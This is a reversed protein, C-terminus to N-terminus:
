ESVICPYLVLILNIDVKEKEKLKWWKEWSGVLCQFSFSISLSRFTKLQDPSAQKCHPYFSHAASLHFSYSLIFPPPRPAKGQWWRLGCFFMWVKPKQEVLKMNIKKGYSKMIRHEAATNPKIVITPVTETKKNRPHQQHHHRPSRPAMQKFYNSTM